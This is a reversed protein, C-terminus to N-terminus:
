DMLFQLSWHPLGPSVLHTWPERGTLIQRDRVKLVVASILLIQAVVPAYRSPSPTDVSGRMDFGAPLVSISM